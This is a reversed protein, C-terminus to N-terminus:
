IKKLFGMAEFNNLLYVEHKISFFLYHTIILNVHTKLTVNVKIHSNYDIV